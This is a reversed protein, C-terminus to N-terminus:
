VIASLEVASMVFFIIDVLIGSIIGPPTVVVVIITMDDEIPPIVTNM